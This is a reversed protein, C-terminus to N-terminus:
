RLLGPLLCFWLSDLLTGILGCVYGAKTNSMGEPDMRNARMKKLDGQGMAWAAVGFPFGLFGCVGFLIISIIGLTLILPGRHPEWDRRRPLRFPRARPRDDADLARGCSRCRDADARVDEGCAPCPIRDDDAEARPRRPSRLPVARLPPPPPPVNRAPGPAGDEDDLSLRLEATGPAADPAAGTPGPEEESAPLAPREGDPEPATFTESCTPCQVLRGFLAEPLRLRRRCSPCDIVESM